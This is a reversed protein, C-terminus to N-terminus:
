STTRRPCCTRHCLPGTGSGPLVWRMLLYYTSPRKRRDVPCLHLAVGVGGTRDLADLLLEYLVGVGDEALVQSEGGEVM